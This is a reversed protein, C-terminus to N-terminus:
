HVCVDVQLLIQLIHIQLHDILTGDSFVCVAFVVEPDHSHEAGEIPCQQHGDEGCGTCDAKATSFGIALLFVVVIATAWKEWINHFLKM